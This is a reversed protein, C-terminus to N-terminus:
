VTSITSFASGSGVFVGNGAAVCAGVSSFCVTFQFVPIREPNPRAAIIPANNNKVLRFLYFLCVIIFSNIGFNSASSYITNFPCDSGFPVKISPLKVFKTYLRKPIKQMVFRQTMLSQPIVKELSTIENIM